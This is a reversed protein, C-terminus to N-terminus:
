EYTMATHSKSYGAPPNSFLKKNDRLFKTAQAEDTFRRAVSDNKLWRAKGDRVGGFYVRVSKSGDDYEPLLSCAIVFFLDGEGDDSDDETTTENPDSQVENAVDEGLGGIVQELVDLTDRLINNRAILDSVEREPKMLREIISAM